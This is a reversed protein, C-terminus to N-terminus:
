PTRAPNLGEVYGEMAQRLWFRSALSRPDVDRLSMRTATGSDGILSGFTDFFEVDNLINRIEPNLRARAGERMRAFEDPYERKLVNALKPVSISGDKGVVGPKELAMLLRYRNGALRWAQMLEQDGIKAEMIDELQRVLARAAKGAVPQNNLTLGEATEWLLSRLNMLREGSLGGELDMGLLKLQKRPLYDEVATLFDEPLPVGGGDDLAREVRQYVPGTVRDRIEGLTAKGFGERGENALGFAQRMNAEFRAQNGRLVPILAPRIIPDSEAGARLLQLGDSMGPLQEYGRQRGWIASELQQTNMPVPDLLERWLTELPGTRM